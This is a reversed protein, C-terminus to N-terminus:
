HKDTVRDYFLMYVNSDMLNFQKCPRIENDSIQLWTDTSTRLHKSGSIKTENTNATSTATATTNSLNLDNLTKRFNVFHGSQANGYHVIASKLEYYDLVSSNIAEAKEANTNRKIVSNVLRNGGILGGIGVQRLSFTSNISDINNTTSSSSSSASATTIFNTKTHSSNNDIKIKLPFQVYSTQKIMEANHGSWSNRQIQLCLCDPLKAIALKKIMGAKKRNNVNNGEGEQQCEKCKECQMDSLHELKFYNNICEVLTYGTSYEYPRTALKLQPLTLSLSYFSELRLPYKYNCDLCQLQSALYGHFPNTPTLNNRFSNNFFNLSKMSQKAKLQEEDLVDMLLHFLEHCDHEESQQIQWHHKNLAYKLDHAAYFDNQWDNLDIIKEKVSKGGGGGDGSLDEVVLSDSPNTFNREDDHHNLRNIKKIIKNLVYFLSSTDTNNTHANATLWNTVKGSSALSQLIVNIFCENHNNYLGRPYEKRVKKKELKSPYLVYVATAGILCSAVCVYPPIHKLFNFFM